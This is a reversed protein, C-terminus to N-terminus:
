ASKSHLAVYQPVGCRIVGDVVHHRLEVLPHAEDRLVKQVGQLPGGTWGVAVLPVDSTVRVVFCDLEALRSVQPLRVDAPLM